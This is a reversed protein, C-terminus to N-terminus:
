ADCRARYLTMLIWAPVAGALFGAWAPLLGWGYTAIGAVIGAALVANGGAHYRYLVGPAMKSPTVPASQTIPPQANVTAM